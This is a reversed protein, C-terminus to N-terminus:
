PHITSDFGADKFVAAMHDPHIKGTFIWYWFWWGWPGPYGTTPKM